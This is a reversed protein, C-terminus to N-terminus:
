RIDSQEEESTGPDNLMDKLDKLVEKDDVSQLTYSEVQIKLNFFRLISKAIKKLSGVRVLDTFDEKLLGTLV